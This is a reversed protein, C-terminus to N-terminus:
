NSLFEERDVNRILIYRENVTNIEGPPIPLSTESIVFEKLVAKQIWHTELDKYIDGFYHSSGITVVELTPMPKTIMQYSSEGSDYELLACSRGNVVSLGKLELTIEGNNFFSGELIGSGLNVPAETFAAAHVIKDGMRNLDEIGSGEAMPAAFVDCIGHFDIFANYVHYSINIPVSNGKEDILNQFREHDIGFVQGGEDIGEQLIYTWNTLAPLEVEQSDEQQLTFRRCIYEDKEKGSIGAPLYQLHLRFITTGTRAGDLAYSMLRSEMMFYQTEPLREGELNFENKLFSYDSLQSHTMNPIAFIYAMIFISFHISIVKNM